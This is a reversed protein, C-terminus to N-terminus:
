LSSKGELKNLDNDTKTNIGTLTEKALSMILLDLQPDSTPSVPPTGTSILNSNKQKNRTLTGNKSGTPSCVRSGCGSAVSGKGVSNQGFSGRGVSSKEFSIQSVLGISEPGTPTMPKTTDENVKAYISDTNTNTSTNSKVSRGSCRVSASPVEALDPANEKIAAQEKLQKERM